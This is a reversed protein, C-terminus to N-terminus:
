LVLKRIRGEMEGKRLETINEEALAHVVLHDEHANTTLTGPTLTISNAYLTKKLPTDIATEVRTWTPSIPLAPIWVRRAVDASAKVVAWFLWLAYHILGLSPRVWSVQGDVRDMRRLLWVVLLVSVAGMSLLLTTFHGSLLAWFLCLITTLVLYLM